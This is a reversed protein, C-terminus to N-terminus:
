TWVHYSTSMARLSVGGDVWYPSTPQADRLHTLPTYKVAQIKGALHPTRLVIRPETKAQLNFCLGNTKYVWIFRGGSHVWFPTNRAGAGLASLQANINNYNVYEWYAVPFNGIARLPMFYISSAYSGASVNGNNINTHEFIGDDLVVPYRNGNIDIYNGNRMADRMQVNVNDNIVVPNSGGENACRHTLYRCPWVASLEFWLEPRMVIVWTVPLLGTRRAVDRLYFEMTSLYDVIDLTSGDVVNYNFNYILSDASPM